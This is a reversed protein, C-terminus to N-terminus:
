QSWDLYGADGIFQLRAVGGAVGDLGARHEETGITWTLGCYGDTSPLRVTAAHPGSGAHTVTSASGSWVFASYAHGQRSWSGDLSRLSDQCTPRDPESSDDDNAARAVPDKSDKLAIFTTGAGLGFSTALAVIMAVWQPANRGIPAPGIRPLDPM